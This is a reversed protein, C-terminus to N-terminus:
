ETVRLTFEICNSKLDTVECRIFQPNDRFDKMQLDSSKYEKKLNDLFRDLQKGEYDTLGSNDGNVISSAFHCGINFTIYDKM